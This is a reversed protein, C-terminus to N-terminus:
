SALRYRLIALVENGYEDCKELLDRGEQLTFMSRSEPSKQIVEHCQRELDINRSGFYGLDFGRVSEPMDALYARRAVGGDFELNSHDMWEDVYNSSARVSRIIEFATSEGMESLNGELAMWGALTDLQIEEYVNPSFESEFLPAETVESVATHLGKDGLASLEFHGYRVISEVASFPIGWETPMPIQLLPAQLRRLAATAAEYRQLRGMEKVQQLLLEDRAWDM